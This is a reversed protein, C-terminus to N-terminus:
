DKKNHDTNLFTINEFLVCWFVCSLGGEGEIQHFDM